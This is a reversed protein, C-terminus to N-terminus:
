PGLREWNAGDSTRWLGSGTECAWGHTPDVFIVNGSGGAVLGAKALGSALRWTHGGDNTEFVGDRDPFLWALNATVVALNAHGLSYPALYGGSPLGGAAPLSVNGSLL